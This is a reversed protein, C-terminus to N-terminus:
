VAFTLLSHQSATHLDRWVRNIEMDPSAALLGCYPYLVDVTALAQRALARSTQSVALLQEVSSQDQNWSKDVAAFFANRALHLKDTELAFVKDLEHQNDATLKPQKRKQEFVAHCLDTFHVAMGSLNVALTAEALQLFPYQYLRDSVAAYDANIRFCRNANVKLNKIQFSHSGTAVMGTYKWTPLLIVDKKDVIFPLICPENKDDLVVEGDKKIICNATFHTAHYAGSTYKWTGNIIYGTDTIEATGDAAGSGALCVNDEKFIFNAIQPSIFGGFWGAGSCLTVVWGISGDAWSIAEQLRVLDTLAIQKGTYVQPILLKFWKQRYVMKLQSASLMGLEEAEIAADRIITVDQHDIYKSPHAISHEM